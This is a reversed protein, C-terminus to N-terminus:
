IRRTILGIVFVAAVVGAGIFFGHKFDTTWGSM